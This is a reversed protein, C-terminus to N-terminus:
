GGTKSCVFCVRPGWPWSRRMSPRSTWKGGLVATCRFTMPHWMIDSYQPGSWRSNLGERQILPPLGSEGTSSNRWGVSSLSAKMGHDRPARMQGPLFNEWTSYTAMMDYTSLCWRTSAIGSTPSVGSAVVALTQFFVLSLSGSSVIFIRCGSITRRLSTLREVGLTTQYGTTKGYLRM